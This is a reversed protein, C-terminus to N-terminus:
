DEDPADLDWRPYLEDHERRFRQGLKLREQEIAEEDLGAEEWGKEAREIEDINRQSLMAREMQIERAIHRPIEGIQSALWFEGQTMRRVRDLGIEPKKTVIRWFFLKSGLWALLEM